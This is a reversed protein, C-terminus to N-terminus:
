LLLMSKQFINKTYDNNEYDQRQLHVVSETNSQATSTNVGAGSIGGGNGSIASSKATVKDEDLGEVKSITNLRNTRFLNGEEVEIMTKGAAVAEAKTVGVGGLVSGTVAKSAATVKMKHTAEMNVNDAHFISRGSKTSVKLYSSGADKADSIIGAGAVAGVSVGQSEATVRNRKWKSM